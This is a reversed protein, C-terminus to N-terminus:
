REAAQTCKEHRKMWRCTLPTMAFMLADDGDGYYSKAVGEFTWGIKPALKRMTKNSRQTKMQLRDAALEVFVFAFVDRVVRPSIVGESYVGLEWTWVNEQWLPVAGHLVGSENVIGPVIQPRRGVDWRQQLWELCTADHGFVLAGM